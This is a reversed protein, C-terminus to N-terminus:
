RPVAQEGAWVRDRVEYYAPRPAALWNHRDGRVIGGDFRQRTGSYYSHVYIRTISPIPATIEFLYRTAKLQCAAASTCGGHRKTAKTWFAGFRYVGGSETIWYERCGLARMLARTGDDRFRNVDSYNHLGCLARPVRLARRFEAIWRSTRTFTLRKADARDAADLVDAVVITCARQLEACVESAINAFEAAMRPNRYTPQAPHNAENWPSIVTVDPFRELFARIAQRYEAATPLQCQRLRPNKPCEEWAGRSHQFTVLPQVGAERAARLYPAIRGSLETDGRADAAVTDYAILLRTTTVRMALFNPDTFVTPNAESIGVVPAAPAVAPVAASLTAALLLTLLTRRM